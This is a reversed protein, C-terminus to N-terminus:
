WKHGATTAFFDSSNKEFASDRQQWQKYTVFLLKKMTHSLTKCLKEKYCSIKLKKEM